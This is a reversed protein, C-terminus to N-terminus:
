KSDNWRTLVDKPLYAVSTAVVPVDPPLYAESKALTFRVWAPSALCEEGNQDRLTQAIAEDTLGKHHLRGALTEDPTLSPPTFLRGQNPNPKSPIPM